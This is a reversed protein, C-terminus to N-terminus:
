EAYDLRRIKLLTLEYYLKSCQTIYDVLELEQEHTLLSKSGTRSHKIVAKKLHDLIKTKLM